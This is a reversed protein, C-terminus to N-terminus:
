LRIECNDKNSKYIADVVLNAKYGNDSITKNKILSKLHIWEKSWSNDIKPFYITKTSPKGGIMNRIGITLKESGYSGGLGKINLVSGKLSLM